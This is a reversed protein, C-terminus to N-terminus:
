IELMKFDFDLVLFDERVHLNRRPLRNLKVSVTPRQTVM